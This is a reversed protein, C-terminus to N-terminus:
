PQESLHPRVEEKVEAKGHTIDLWVGNKARHGTLSSEQEKEKKAKAERRAEKREKTARPFSRASEPSTGKRAV